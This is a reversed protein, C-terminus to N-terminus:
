FVGGNGFYNHAEGSERDECFYRVFERFRHPPVDRLCPPLPPPGGIDAGVTARLVAFLEEAFELYLRYSPTKYAHIAAYDILRSEYTIEEIRTRLRAALEAGFFETVPPTELLGPRLLAPLVMNKPAFDKISFEWALRAEEPTLDLGPSVRGHPVRIDRMIITGDTGYARGAIVEDRANDVRRPNIEVRARPMYTIQGGHTAVRIGFDWDDSLHNVFRGDHLQYFIEIGGSREYADRTVAFGKGDPFGGFLRFTVARCRLTRSIADWLRPRGAFDEAPYYYDCVGLAAGSADMGERIEWLWDSAVRCDADASVLYFPMDAAPRARARAAAFEMGARRACSVGQEPEAILHVGLAPHEAAFRKAIATTDDTSNNDVLVLEYTGHDLPGHPSRQAYLADLIAPLNEAENYMPVIVSMAVAPSMVPGTM